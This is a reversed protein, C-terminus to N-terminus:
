STRPRKFVLRRVSATAGNDVFEVQGLLEWGAEGLRVIQLERAVMKEEGRQGPPGIHDLDTELFKYEWHTM